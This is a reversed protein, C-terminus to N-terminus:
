MLTKWGPKGWLTSLRSIIQQRPRLDALRVLCGGVGGPPTYCRVYLTMHPGNQLTKSVEHTGWTLTHVGVAISVNSYQRANNESKSDEFERTLTVTAATGGNASHIQFLLGANGHPFHFSFM